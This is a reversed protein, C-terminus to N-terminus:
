SMRPPVFPPNRFGTQPIEVRDGVTLYTAQPPSLVPVFVGTMYVLSREVITLLVLAGEGKGRHADSLEHVYRAGAFPNSSGLEEPCFYLVIDHKEVFYLCWMVLLSQSYFLFAATLVVTTVVRVM